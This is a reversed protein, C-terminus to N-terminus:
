PDAVAAEGKVGAGRRAPRPVAEARVDDLARQANWAWVSGDLERAESADRGMVYAM